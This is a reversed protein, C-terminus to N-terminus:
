MNLLGLYNNLINIGIKGDIRVKRGTSPNVIYKYISGGSKNHSHSKIEFPINSPDMNKNMYEISKIFKERIIKGMGSYFPLGAHDDLLHEIKWEQIEPRAPNINKKLLFCIDSTINPMFELTKLDAVWSNKPYKLSGNRNKMNKFRNIENRWNEAVISIYNKQKRNLNNCYVIDSLFPQPPPIHNPNPSIFLDSEAFYNKKKISM